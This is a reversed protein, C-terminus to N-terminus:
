VQKCAHRIKDDLAEVTSRFTEASSFGTSPLLVAEAKSLWVVASDGDKSVSLDKIAGWPLFGSANDDRRWSIGDDGIDVDIRKGVLSCRSYMGRRVVVFAFFMCTAYFVPVVVAEMVIKQWEIPSERSMPSANIAALAMALLAVLWLPHAWPQKQYYHRQIADYCERTFLYSAKVNM